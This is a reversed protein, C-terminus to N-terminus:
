KITFNMMFRSVFVFERIEGDNMMKEVISRSIKWHSEEM